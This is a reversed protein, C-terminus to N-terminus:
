DIVLQMMGTSMSSLLVMLTSLTSYAVIFPVAGTPIQILGLLLVRELEEQSLKHLVRTVLLHNEERILHWVSSCQRAM